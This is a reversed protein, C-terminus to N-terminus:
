RPVIIPSMLSHTLNALIVIRYYKNWKEVIKKLLFKVLFPSRYIHTRQGYKNTKLADMPPAVRTVIKVWEVDNQDQSIKFHFIFSVQFLSFFILFISILNSFIFSLSHKM